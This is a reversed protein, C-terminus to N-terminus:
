EEEEKFDDITSREIIREKIDSGPPPEEEEEERVLEVKESAKAGFAGGTNYFIQAAKPHYEGEGKIKYSIGITEGEKVMPIGWSLKTMGDPTDETDPDLSYGGGTFNEPIIDKIVLDRIPQNGRNRYLLAIHYEGRNAGQEISKGISFKRLIHQTGIVPAGAVDVGTVIPGPLYPKGDAEAPAIIKTNPEPNQIRTNYTITIKEGKELPGGIVSLDHIHIYLKQEVSASDDVPELIFGVNDEIFTSGRQVKIDHINPPVMFKPINDRVFVQELAASGINEIEIRAAISTNSRARVLPKDFTKNFILGAVEFNGGEKHMKYNIEKSLGPIVNLVLNKIFKPRDQGYVFWSRSVWRENPPINVGPKEMNLYVQQSQHDMVQVKLIEVEFSSTNECVFRCLWKGPEETEDAEIFYMNKCMADFSTVVIESVTDEGRAELTVDGIPIEESSETEIDGEFILSRIEDADLKNIRWVLKEDEIASDEVSEGSFIVNKLISPISKKVVINKYPIQALNKLGLQLLVHAPVDKELIVSDRFDPDTTLIEELVISPRPLDIAYERSVKHRPEIETAKINDFDLEVIGSEEIVKVDVDWIRDKESLNMVSVIGKASHSTLNGKSSYSTEEEEKFHIMAKSDDSFHIRTPPELRQRKFREEIMREDYRDYKLAGTSPDLKAGAEGFGSDAELTTFTEDFIYEYPVRGVFQREIRVVKEEEEM